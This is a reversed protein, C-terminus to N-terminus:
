ELVEVVDGFEDDGGMDIKIPKFGSRRTEPVDMDLKRVEILLKKALYEEAQALQLYNKIAQHDMDEVVRIEDEIDPSVSPIRVARVAKPIRAAQLGEYIYDMRIRVHSLANAAINSLERRAADAIQEPYKKEIDLIERGSVIKPSFIYDFEKKIELYSRRLALKKIVWDREDPDLNNLPIMENSM